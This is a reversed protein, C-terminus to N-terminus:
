VVSLLIRTRLMKNCTKLGDTNSKMVTKSLPRHFLVNEHMKRHLKFTKRATSKEPRLNKDGIRPSSNWSTNNPKSLSFLIQLLFRFHHLYTILFLASSLLYSKLFYVFPSFLGWWWLFSSLFSFDSKLYLMVFSKSM